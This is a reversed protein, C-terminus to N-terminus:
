IRAATRAERKSRLYQQWIIAIDNKYIWSLEDGVPFAELRSALVSEFIYTPDSSQSKAETQARSVKAKQSDLHEYMRRYYPSRIDNFIELADAINRAKIVQRDHDSDSFTSSARSTVLEIARALIWGDELAFAAGSGFAGSLPHSADGLLVVKGWGVLRELRPGSFASFEKWGGEPVRSLADRVRRDYQTFHVNVRENTAPVGWSFRKETDLAPDILYRCSVEIMQESSSSTSSDLFESPDDVLSFYCHGSPGHWWSTDPFLDHIHSLSKAPILTRWITTGTFKTIHEPFLSTRIVSRIGDGGVVLDATTKAGDEFTLHVGQTGADHISVLKKNLQIIGPPVKSILAAQLRTRKVRRSRYKLPVSSPAPKVRKIEGSLGNRYLVNQQLHGRVDEAAGLLELVKWCNYGISIGAGVERLERAKEYLTIRVNPLASLAIAAGLGAPGGGIIAIRLVNAHNPETSM